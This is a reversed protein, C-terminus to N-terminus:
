VDQQAPGLSLVAMLKESWADLAQRKEADYSHRDYVRTIGSEVHNLLKSVVLRSIGMGTMHSAATRRLDHPVFNVGSAEKIRDAAKQINAIHQGKVKPSPFVWPSDGSIPKLALLLDMAAKSLPVRHSLKNKAIGSPITWWGGDLDIDAWAMSEVEGGRQATLLRLKFITGVLADQQDFARWVTRIEEESLVRDRQNEPAVARVQHAPNTSVLDRELAWNFMRSILARTRNAQIPSGRELISELLAIVDKRKIDQAKLRGWAPLIDHQIIRQDEKWSRKNRKAYKEIYEEALWAVTPAQKEDRKTATPDNGRQAEVLV